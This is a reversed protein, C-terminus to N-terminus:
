AAGAAEEPRKFDLEVFLVSDGAEGVVVLFDIGVGGKGEGAVGVVSLGSTAGEGDQVFDDAAGFGFALEGGDAGAGCKDVGQGVSLGDGSFFAM